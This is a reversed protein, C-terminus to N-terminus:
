KTVRVTTWDELESPIHHAVVSATGVGIAELTSNNSTIGFKVILADTDSRPSFVTDRTVIETDGNNYHATAEYKQFSGLSLVTTKPSIEIFDIKLAVHVHVNASDNFEEYSVNIVADGPSVSEVWNAYDMKIISEDSPTWTVEDFLDETHGDSYNGEVEFKMRKRMELDTQKPSITLSILQSEVVKVDASATVTGLTAVIKDEGILVAEAFSLSDDVPKIIGKDSQLSWIVDDTIEKQSEDSYTGMAQFHQTNGIDLISAKPTVDISQLTPGTSSSSSGCGSFLLILTLSLLTFLSKM